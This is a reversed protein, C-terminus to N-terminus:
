TQANGEQEKKLLKPYGSVVETSSLKNSETTMILFNHEKYTGASWLKRYSKPLDTLSIPDGSCGQLPGELLSVQGIQIIAEAFASSSQQPLKILQLSQWQKLFSNTWQPKELSKM